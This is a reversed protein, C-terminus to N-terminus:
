RDDLQEKVRNYHNMLEKSEKNYINENIISTEMMQEVIDRHSIANTLLRECLKRTFAKSKSKFQLHIIRSRELTHQYHAILVDFQEDTYDYAYNEPNYRASQLRELELELFKIECLVKNYIDQHEQALEEVAKDISENLINNNM